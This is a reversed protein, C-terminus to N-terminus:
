RPAKLPPLATSLLSSPIQSFGSFPHDLELILLIAGAISLSSVLLTVIAVWNAQAYLTFSAFLTALWFVLIVLFSMPISKGSQAFLLLRAQVLEGAIQVVRTQLTRQRENQPEIREIEDLFLLPVDAAEFPVRENSADEQWIRDVMIDVSKRLLDRAAVTESGYQVLLNDILIIRATMQRVQNSKQDYSSKATAIVLGLVLASITGILGMAVKVIDKSSENLLRDPLVARIAMGVLAGGFVICFVTSSIALSSM